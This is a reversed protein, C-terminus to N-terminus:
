ASVAAPTRDPWDVSGAAMDWFQREWRCGTRFTRTARERHAPSAAALAIDIRERMAQVVEDYAPDAFFRIWGAYVPHEVLGPAVSHAIEGYSWTCPLTAALVDLSSGTTATALLWSTYGTPAPAPELTEPDLREGDTCLAQIDALLRHNTPVETHLIHRTADAFYGATDLDESRTVGMALVRAYQGLYRINQAVYFRFREPAFTGAAMAAPVPHGILDHWLPGAETRLQESTM